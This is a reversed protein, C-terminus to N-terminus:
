MLVCGLGDRSADGYVVFGETGELLTLVSATTLRKKLEKFNKDCAERCQFRITMQTFKTLLSSISFGEVFSRHYRTLGLFSM